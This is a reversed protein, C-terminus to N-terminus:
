GLSELLAQCRAKLATPPPRDALWRALDLIQRKAAPAWPGSRLLATVVAQAQRQPNPASDLTRVLKRAEALAEARPREM